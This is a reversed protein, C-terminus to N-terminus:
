SWTNWSHPVSVLHYCDWLCLKITSCLCIKLINMGPINMYHGVFGSYRLNSASYLNIRVPSGAMSVICIYISSPMSWINTFSLFLNCLRWFPSAHTEMSFLSSLNMFLHLFYQVNSNSIIFNKRNKRYVPSIIQV